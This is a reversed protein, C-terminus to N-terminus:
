TEAEEYDADVYEEEAEAGAGEPGGAGAGGVGGMGQGAAGEAGEYVQKGIEMLTRSLRETREGLTETDADEEVTERVSEVDDEIDSRLDDDLNEEHEDLLQEARHVTAEAENRAEVHERRKEDEEAHEEAEEVMGEVEEDSLGVGGEITVSETNGSGTDEAEVELIGDANLSFTVEIQPTGAPAPPVGTLQFRGLTENGGAMEREGQLVHIDVQTQGDAATTFVQTEETPITTNRDILRTFIGGKTELGLSLPTVDLLVIDDVEGSLVGGQIAAGLAVAEDPNVDKRPEMGLKEEVAERVRPMRTAGGVLIVDDVDEKSIGADDLAEEMPGMTREVLDATLSEFKARTLTEELHLPGNDDHYVYPENITTQKVSSLEIKASEAAERLRQHADRDQMLDVGHEQGFKEALYEQVASDWDDGGLENDGSTAVVDYVGGGLQLVSVDFTGGGLDYVLLTQDEEDGYGYAMSAATPENVIRAVDLGAIRGANKTANRQKDNFYAPVTIVAREVEEGLYEGADRKLKQLIFASIQEPMYSDDGVDVGYGDDGMHRKISQVTRGPKKIAQNKAAKGVILEDDGFAVVSPTTREGEANEIIEPDGGEMIAMASNTTGLDIGLIKEGSM